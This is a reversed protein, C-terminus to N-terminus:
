HACSYIIRSKTITISRRHRQVQWQMLEPSNRSFRMKNEFVQFCMNWEINVSVFAHRTYMSGLKQNRLSRTRGMIKVRTWHIYITKKHKKQWKMRVHNKREKQKSDIMKEKFNSKRKEKSIQLRIKWGLCLVEFILYITNLHKAVSYEPM